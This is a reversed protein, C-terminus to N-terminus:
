LTRARYAAIMASCAFIAACSTWSTRPTATISCGLAKASGWSRTTDDFHRTPLPTSPAARSASYTLSARLARVRSLIERASRRTFTLLLIREPQIGQDLLYEVRATLTTTKGTGPGAIVRLPQDGFSAAERQRDNLDTRTAFMTRVYRLATVPGVPKRRSVTRTSWRCDQAGVLYITMPM